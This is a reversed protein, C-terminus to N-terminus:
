ETKLLFDGSRHGILSPWISHRFFYTDRITVAHGRSWIKKYLTEGDRGSFEHKAILTDKRADYVRFTSMRELSRIGDHARKYGPELWIEYETHHYSVSEKKRFYLMVGESDIVVGRVGKLCRWVYAAYLFVAFCGAVSVPIFDAAAGVGFCVVAWLLYVAHSDDYAHVATYRLTNEDSQSEAAPQQQADNEGALCDTKMEDIAPAFKKYKSLRSRKPCHKKHM